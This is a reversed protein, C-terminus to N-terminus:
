ELGELERMLLQLLDGLLIPLAEAVRNELDQLSLEEM